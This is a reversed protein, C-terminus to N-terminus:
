GSTLHPLGCDPCLSPLPSTLSSPVHIRPQLSILMTASDPIFIRPLTQPLPYMSFDWVSHSIGKPYSPPHQTAKDIRPPSPTLHRTHAMTVGNRCGPHNKGQLVLAMYRRNDAGIAVGAGARYSGYVEMLCSNWGYMSSVGTGVSTGPPNYAPHEHGSYGTRTSIQYHAQWEAIKQAAEVLRPDRILPKQGWTSRQLNVEDLAEGKATASALAVISVAFVGIWFRRSRFLNFSLEVFLDILIFPFLTILWLPHIFFM